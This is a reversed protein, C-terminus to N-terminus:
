ENEETEIKHLVVRYLLAFAKQVAKQKNETRSGKLQLKRIEVKRHCAVAVYVLGVPKDESAGPGANGTISIGFDTQMLHKVGVAMEKATEKSVAGFKDLTESKVGLVKHKVENTYSVVSGKLYASSGPVDTILSSALGGTCSEAFSITLNKNTLIQGLEEIM